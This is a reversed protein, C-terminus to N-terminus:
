IDTEHTIIIGNENTQRERFLKIKEDYSSEDAYEWDKETLFYIAWKDYLQELDKKKSLVDNSLPQNAGLAKYIDNKVTNVVFAKAFAILFRYRSLVVVREIGPVKCLINLIPKTIDFNTHGMNWRYQRMPNFFDKIHYAGFPTTIIQELSFEQVDEESYEEDEEEVEIEQINGNLMNTEINLDEWVIIKM